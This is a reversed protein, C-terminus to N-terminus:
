LSHSNTKPNALWSFTRSSNLCESATILRNQLSRRSAAENRDRNTLSESDARYSAVSTGMRIGQSKCATFVPQSGIALVQRKKKKKKKAKKKAVGMSPLFHLPSLAGWSCREVLSQHTITYLYGLGRLRPPLVWSYTQMPGWNGWLSCAWEGVTIALSVSGKIPKRPQKGIGTKRKM